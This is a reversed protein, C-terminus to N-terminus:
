RPLLDLLLRVPRSFMVVLMADAVLIAIVAPSADGVLTILGLRAVVDFFCALTV